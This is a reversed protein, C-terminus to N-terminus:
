ISYTELLWCTLLRIDCSKYDGPFGQLNYFAPKKMKESKYYIYDGFKGSRINTTNSIDRVYKSSFKEKSDSELLSIVDDYRINEIPRNGFTSLSQRMTDNNWTVYLGYNGKRLILDTEMYKGLVVNGPKTIEIIEDLTYEQKIM